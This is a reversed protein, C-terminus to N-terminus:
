CIRFICFLLLILSPSGQIGRRSFHANLFMGLTAFHLLNFVNLMVAVVHMICCKCDLTPVPKCAFSDALPKRCITIHTPHGQVHSEMTWCQNLMLKRVEAGPEGTIGTRCLTCCVVSTLLAWGVNEACNFVAVRSHWVRLVTCASPSALLHPKLPPCISVLFVLSSAKTAQM